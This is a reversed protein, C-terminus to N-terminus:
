FIELISRADGVERARKLAEERTLFVGYRTPGITARRELRYVAFVSGTRLTPAPTERVFVRGMWPQLEADPHEADCGFFDAPLNPNFPISTM